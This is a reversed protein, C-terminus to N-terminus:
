IHWCEHYVRVEIKNGHDLQMQKIHYFRPDGEALLAAQEESDTYVTCVYHDNIFVKYPEMKM